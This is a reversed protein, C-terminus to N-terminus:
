LPATAGAGREGMPALRNEPALEHGPENAAHRVRQAAYGDARELVEAVAYVVAGRVRERQRRRELAQGRRRALEALTREFAGHDDHSGVAGDDHAAGPRASGCEARSEM